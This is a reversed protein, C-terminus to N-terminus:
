SRRLKFEGAVSRIGGIGERLEKLGRVLRESARKMIRSSEAVGELNANLREALRRFESTNDVPQGPASGHPDFLTLQHRPIAGSTPRELALALAFDDTAAFLRVSLAGAERRVASLDFIDVEMVQTDLHCDALAASNVRGNITDRARIGRDNGTRTRDGTDIGAARVRNSDPKSM